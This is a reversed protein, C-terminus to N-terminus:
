EAAAKKDLVFAMRLLRVGAMALVVVFAAICVFTLLDSIPGFPEYVAAAQAIIYSRLGPIIFLFLGALLGAVAAARFIPAAAPLLSAVTEGEGLRRWILVDTLFRVAAVMAALLAAKGFHTTIELVGNVTDTRFGVLSGFLALALLFTIGANKLTGSAVPSAPPQAAFAAAQSKATNAM